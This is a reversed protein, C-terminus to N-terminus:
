RRDARSPRRDPARWVLCAQFTISQFSAREGSRPATLVFSTVRLQGTGYARVSDVVEPPTASGSYELTRGVEPSFYFERVEGPANVSGDNPATNDANRFHWGELDRPNPVFHWPPTLRALNEDRGRERIEVSWGHEIPALRLSYADSFGAEFAEGARAGGTVDRAQYGDPAVCAGVPAVVGALLSWGLAIM